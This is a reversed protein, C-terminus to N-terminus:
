DLKIGRKALNYHMGIIQKLMESKTVGKDECIYDLMKMTDDDTRFSVVRKKAHGTVPRGRKSKLEDIIKEGGDM